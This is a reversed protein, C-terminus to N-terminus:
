SLTSTRALVVHSPDSELSLRQLISSSVICRFWTLPFYYKAWQSEVRQVGGRSVAGSMRAQQEEKM